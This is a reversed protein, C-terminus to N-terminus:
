QVSRGFRKEKKNNRHPRVDDGNREMEDYYSKSIFKLEKPMLFESKLYTMAVKEATMGHYKFFGLTAFPASQAIIFPLSYTM